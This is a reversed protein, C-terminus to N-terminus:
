TRFTTQVKKLARVFVDVEEKTNYVNFSVRTTATLGLQSHLPMTCHHGSRVAIGEQDLMQAVDHAHIHDFTFAILGGRREAEKPGIVHIGKMKLLKLLAYNTLELEHRRIVDMGIHTLYNCAAALGVAGAVNPTGAEFKEPLTNWTSHDLFVERIMDGGGLFPPMSNLIKEKGWLVGIGMPGLMKHGTFAFFDCGLKQVDIPLHPVSQSGDVLVLTRPNITKVIEAIKSVDNITGLANSIHVITVIKTRNTIHTKLWELDLQGDQDFPIYLLKAKKEAALLQWPVINSHHEMMTTIIEDGSKINARGWSYAVLNIAETSNRTFIIEEPKTAHIFHAVTERAQEYMLTSEEGLTHVGRNINANHNLYYEDMAALVQKPKQSTAANDFYILPKGNIRRSLIPFDERIKVTNLM